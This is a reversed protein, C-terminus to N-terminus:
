VEMERILQLADEISERKGKWFMYSAMDNSKYFCDHELEKFIRVQAELKEIVETRKM